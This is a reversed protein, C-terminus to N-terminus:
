VGEFEPLNDYEEQTIEIISVKYELNDYLHDALHKMDEKISELIYDYDDSIIIGDEFEFKYCEIKIEDEKKM